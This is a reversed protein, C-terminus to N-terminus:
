YMDLFSIDNIDYAVHFQVFRKCRVNRNLSLCARSVTTKSTETDGTLLVIPCSGTKATIHSYGLSMVAGGIAMCTAPYNNAMLSKLTDYLETIVSSM